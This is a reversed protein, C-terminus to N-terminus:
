GCPCAKGSRRWPERSAALTNQVTGIGYATSEYRPPVFGGNTNGISVRPCQKSLGKPDYTHNLDFGFLPAVKRAVVARGLPSITYPANTLNLHQADGPLRRAAFNAATPVRAGRWAALTSGAGQSMISSNAVSSYYPIRHENSVVVRRVLDQVAGNMRDEM